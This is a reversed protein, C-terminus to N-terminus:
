NATLSIDDVLFEGVAYGIHFTAAAPDVTETYVPTTISYQAWEETITKMEETGDYPDGDRELKLNVDLPGSNSKMWASLTYAKGAEFVHGGQKFGIDWFNATAAAVSVKLAYDGDVADGSVVEISAGEGYMSWEKPAWTNLPTAAGDEFSGHGILNAGPEPEPEPEPEPAPPPTLSLKVYDVDFATVASTGSSGMAIYNGDEDLQDGTTVDFPLADAGNASVTVIHTGTGGAAIDVVFTNWATADAIPLINPIAAEGTDVDNSIEAGLLGNMVLADTEL